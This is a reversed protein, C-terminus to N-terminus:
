WKIVIVKLTIRDMWIFIDREIGRIKERKRSVIKWDKCIEREREM